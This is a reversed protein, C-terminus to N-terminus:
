NLYDIYNLCDEDELLELIELKMENLKYDIDFQYNNLGICSQMYETIDNQYALIIEEIKEKM